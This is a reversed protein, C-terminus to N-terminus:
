GARCSSRPSSGGSSQRDEPRRRRRAGRTAQWANRASSGCMSTTVSPVICRGDEAGLGVAHVSVCPRPSRPSCIMSSCRQRSRSGAGLREPSGVARHGGQSLLATVREDTRPRIPSASPDMGARRPSRARGRGTHSRRQGASPAVDALRKPRTPLATSASSSGRPDRAAASTCCSRLSVETGHLATSALLVASLRWEKWRELSRPHILM